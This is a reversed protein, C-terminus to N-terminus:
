FLNEILIMNNENVLKDIEKGNRTNLIPDFQEPDFEDGENEIKIDHKTNNFDLERTISNTVQSLSNFVSQDIKM